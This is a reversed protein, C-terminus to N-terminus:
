KIMNNVKTLLSNDSYGKWKDLIIGEPSILVYAPLGTVNYRAAIGGFGLNDSLNLWTINRNESSKKWVKDTDVTISIVTIKDKYEATIKKLEPLAKRCPACNESWFDVLIYEGKYDALHHINGDLDKLEGDAIAEGVQVPPLAFLSATIRKGIDSQKQEDTLRNYVSVIQAKDDYMGSHLWKCAKELQTLGVVGIPNQSLVNIDNQTIQKEIKLRVQKVSDLPAKASQEGKKVRQALTIWEKLVQKIEFFEKQNADMFRNSELQEPVDSEVKWSMPDNNDGTIKIKTGPKTWVDLNKNEGDYCSFWMPTTQDVEKKILFKGNRMVSYDSDLIKIGNNEKISLSVSVSDPMNLIDGEIICEGQGYIVPPIIVFCTLLLFYRM